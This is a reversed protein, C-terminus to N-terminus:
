PIEHPQAEPKDEKITGIKGTEPHLQQLKVQNIKKITKKPNVQQLKEPYAKDIPVNLPKKM